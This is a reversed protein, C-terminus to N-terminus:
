ESDVGPGDKAVFYNKVAPLRRKAARLTLEGRIFALINKWLETEPDEAESMAALLWDLEKKVPKFGVFGETAAQKAQERNLKGAATLTGEASPDDMGAGILQKLLKTQVAENPSGDENLVKDRSWGARDTVKTRAVLGSAVAKKVEPLRELLQLYEDITRPDLKHNVALVKLAESRLKKAERTPPWAAYTEDDQGAPRQAEAYATIFARFSEAKAVPDLDTRGENEGIIISLQDPISTDPPLLTFHAEIGEARAALTRRIGAVVTCQTVAPDEISPEEIAVIPALFSPWEGHQKLLARIKDVGLKSDTRGPIFRPDHKEPIHLDSPDILHSM